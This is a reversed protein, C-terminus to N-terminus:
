FKYTGKGHLLLHLLFSALAISNRVSGINYSFFVSHFFKDYRVDLRFCGDKHTKNRLVLVLVLRSFILVKELEYDSSSSNQSNETALVSTALASGLLLATLTQSVKKM